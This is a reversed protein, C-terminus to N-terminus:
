MAAVGVALPQPVTGGNPLARIIRCKAQAAQVSAQSCALYHERDAALLWCIGLGLQGVLRTDSTAEVLMEAAYFM